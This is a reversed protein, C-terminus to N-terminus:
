GPIPPVDFIFPSSRFKIEEIWALTSNGGILPSPYAYAKGDTDIYFHRTTNYVDFAM